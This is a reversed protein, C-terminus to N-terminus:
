RAEWRELRWQGGTQHDYVYAAVNINGAHVKCGRTDAIDALRNYAEQYSSKKYIDTLKGNQYFLYVTKM